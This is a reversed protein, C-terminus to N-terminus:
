QVIATSCVSLGVLGILGTSRNVSQGYLPPQNVRVAPMWTMIRDQCCDVAPEVSQKNNPAKLCTCKPKFSFTM